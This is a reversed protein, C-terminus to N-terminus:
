AQDKPLLMSRIVEEIADITKASNLALRFKKGGEIGKTFCQAQTLIQAWPIDAPVALRVYSLFMEVKKEISPEPLEEGTKLYHNIRHFVHPDGLAARGICLGDAGTEELCRKASPGDVIDGNAIIPITCAKKIERIASWDSTGSYGQAATRGHVIIADAGASEISKCLAVYDCKEKNGIRIKMIVPKKVADKLSKTIEIIKKPDDLMAAGCGQKKIRFAPCGCNFSIIDTMPELEKAARVIEQLDTGFIQISFPRGEEASRIIRRARVNEERLGQANVMETCVLGAGHQRALVRLAIDSFGAMPSLILNNEFEINGIRM